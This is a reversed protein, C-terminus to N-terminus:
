MMYLSAFLKHHLVVIGTRDLSFYVKKPELCKKVFLATGAYKSDALSWWVHYNGFPPSSIARMLIQM